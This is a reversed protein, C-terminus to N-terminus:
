VGNRRLSVVEGNAVRSAVSEVEVGDPMVYRKGEREEWWVERGKGQEGGSVTRLKGDWPSGQVLHAEVFRKLNDEAKQRGDEGEYANVGAGPEEWPKRPLDEIASNLPALVTTNVSLNSLLNSTSAHLRTLSSFTTLSRHTGLIDALPVSPQSKPTFPSSSDSMVTLLGQLPAQFPSLALALPILAGVLGTSKMIDRQSQTAKSKSHRRLTGSVDDAQVVCGANRCPETM